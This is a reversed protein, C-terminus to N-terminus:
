KVYEVTYDTYDVNDVKAILFHPDATKDTLTQICASAVFFM